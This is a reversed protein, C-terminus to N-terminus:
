LCDRCRSVLNSMQKVLQPSLSSGVSGPSVIISFLISPLPLFAQLFVAWDREAKFNHGLGGSFTNRSFANLKLSLIGRRGIEQTQPQTTTVILVAALATTGVNM